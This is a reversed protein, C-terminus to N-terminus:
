TRTLSPQASNMVYREGSFGFMSQLLYGVISHLESKNLGLLRLEANDVNVPFRQTSPKADQTV